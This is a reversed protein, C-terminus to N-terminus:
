SAREGKEEEGDERVKDGTRRKKRWRKKIGEFHTLNYTIGKWVRRKNEYPGQVM